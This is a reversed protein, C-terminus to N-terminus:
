RGCFVTLFRVISSEPADKAENTHHSGINLPSVNRKMQVLTQGTKHLTM